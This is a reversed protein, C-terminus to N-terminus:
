KSGKCLAYYYILIVSIILNYKQNLFYYKFFLRAHLKKQKFLTKLKFVKKCTYCKNKTINKWLDLKYIMKM